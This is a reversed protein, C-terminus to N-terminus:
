VSLTDDVDVCDFTNFLLPGYIPLIELHSLKSTRIQLTSISCAYVPGTVTIKGKNSGVPLVIQFGWTM